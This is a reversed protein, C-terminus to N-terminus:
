LSGYKILLKKGINPHLKLNQYYTRNRNRKIHKEIALALERSECILSFFIYWDDAFKTSATKFEHSNHWSLRRKLDESQGIYYKDFKASHIIYVHFPM